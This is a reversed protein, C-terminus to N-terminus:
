FVWGKNEIEGRAIKEEVEDRLIIIANEMAKFSMANFNPKEPRYNVIFKDEYNTIAKNLNNLRTVCRQLKKDEDSYKKFMSFEKKQSLFGIQFALQIAELFAAAVTLSTYPHVRQPNDKRSTTTYNFTTTGTAARAIIGSRATGPTIHSM